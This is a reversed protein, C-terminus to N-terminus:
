WEQGLISAWSPRSRDVNSFDGVRDAIKIFRTALPLHQWVIEWIIPMDVVIVPFPYALAGPILHESAQAFQRTDRRSFCGCWGSGHHITLTDFCGTMTFRM